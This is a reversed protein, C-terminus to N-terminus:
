HAPNKAVIDMAKVIEVSIMGSASLGTDLPVRSIVAGEPSTGYKSSDMGNLVLSCVDYYCKECKCMDPDDNIKSRVRELVFDEMANSFIYKEGNHMFEIM